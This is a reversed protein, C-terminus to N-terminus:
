IRLLNYVPGDWVFLCILINISCSYAVTCTVPSVTGPSIFISCFVPMALKPLESQAFRSPITTLQFTVSYHALVYFHRFTKADETFSSYM